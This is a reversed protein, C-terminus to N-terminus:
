ETLHDLLYQLGSETAAQPVEGHRGPYVRMEKDTPGLTEFLEFASTRDVLEDDWNVVFLTPCTVRPADARLREGIGTFRGPVDQLDALGLAAVGIRQESAVFPLGLMTGMSQGRYAVRTADITPLAACADLCARWEEIIDDLLMGYDLRTGDSRSREGHGVLDISTAAAGRQAFWNGQWVRSADRMHGGSGYGLLVLPMPAPPRTPAWLVGPVVKGAVTVEYDQESIGGDIRPDSRWHM